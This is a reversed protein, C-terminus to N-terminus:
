HLYCSPVIILIEGRVTGEEAVIICVFHFYAERDNRVECVCFIITLYLNLIVNKKEEKHVTRFLREANKQLDGKVLVVKCLLSFPIIETVKLM